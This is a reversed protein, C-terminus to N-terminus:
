VSEILKPPIGIDAVIVRGTYKPGQNRVFGKKRCSFTITKSAKVCVGYVKGTTGDLGSPVDVSVIRKGSENMALIISKFPEEIKRNLGVGFVADVIVQSRNIADKFQSNMRKLRRVSIKLKKLIQYNVATDTKLKAPDAMLFVNVKMRAYSLYRAVVFGDGANNGLGCVISVISKEPNKLDRLIEKAVSRGANEMLILSPVGYKEIALRDLQQVQKVTVYKTTMILLSSGARRTGGIWRR